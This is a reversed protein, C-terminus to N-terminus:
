GREANKRKRSSQRQRREGANKAEAGDPEKEEKANENLM